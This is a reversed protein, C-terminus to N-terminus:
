KRNNPHPNVRTLAPTAPVTLRASGNTAVSNATGNNPSRNLRVAHSPDANNNAPKAVTV